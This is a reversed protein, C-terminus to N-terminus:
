CSSGPPPEVRSGGDGAPIVRPPSSGHAAIHCLVIGVAPFVQVPQRFDVTYFSSVHDQQGRDQPGILVKVAKGMSQLAECGLGTRFCLRAAFTVEFRPFKEFHFM